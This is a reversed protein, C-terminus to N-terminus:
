EKSTTDSAADLRQRNVLETFFGNQAILEDYTGDEVIHGGDIVIIRDCHKITSLRHAIVLRTCKLTDLSDSVKKQTINDLASTAEDFMLIKPKPAIARAIMLRQRQGGSIGGQGESIMTNMGMPMAEIDEKIGAMQAADWADQLKLWPASITINSFIDGQFLKGNQMVTGISRRLSRLDMTNIDKGDYYVAGRQPKEFGLLLRMLTSKGCGTKGVIAVYQGPKIKFSIDDLVYPTNENYKFSVHSLEIGGSIHSVVQKGESIEPEADMIPKAMTIIPKIQAVTLAIGALSSFAGSVTGSAASFAYYDSTSVNTKIAIFYMILTGILSIAQTLVGNIKLFMPPNYRLKAEKSYQQAWKAFARKESGSLRLKQVGSILSYTLGSTAASTKMSQESIKMGMFTSIVSFLTTALVILISPIVLSPAYKFIAGIYMLSFLSSVGTSLVTSVLINCLSNIYGTYSTLEGSSYKGFFSAPLSLIRMMTASEVALDLKVNMRNSFLSQVTSVLLSSVSVCVMFISLTLLLSPKGSEAVYGTLLKVLKPSLLGILSSIFMTLVVLIIDFVSVSQYIYVVLDKITLKRNPFPKYFAMADQEFLNANKGTIRIWKGSTEDKYAYGGFALPVLAVVLGTEKMQALFAGTAEKFWKDKLEVRRRMVGYPRLLRELDEEFDDFSVETDKIKIGYYKLVEGLADAAVDANDFLGGAADNGLVSRAMRAFADSLIENDNIKRQKIQEEFWGMNDGM